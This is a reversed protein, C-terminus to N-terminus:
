STTIYTGTIWFYRGTGASHQNVAWPSGSLQNLCDVQTQGTGIVAVPVHGDSWTTTKYHIVSAVARPGTSTFPLGTVFFDGSYGTTDANEFGIEFHVKNGVKTYYSTSTVLSAPESSGKLTATFTGEEYDDLTKSSVNGTVATPNDDFSVGGSLYLDKFRHTSHGLDIAADRQAGNTTAPYIGDGGGAFNLGVDNSVIYLNGAASGISGVPSGDKRFSIISSDVGTNNLSVVPDNANVSQYASAVGGVASINTGGGSTINQTNTSTTGVLLNGSADIRMAEASGITPSNGFALHGGEDNYMHWYGSGDAPTLIVGYDTGNGYGGVEINGNNRKLLNGSSDIRMREASATLDYFSLPSSGANNWQLFASSSAASNLKLVPSSNTSTVSLTQYGTGSIEVRSSPSSTGIGVNGSSDIRMREAGGRTNWTYGDALAVM